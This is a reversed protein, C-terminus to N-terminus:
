FGPQGMARKMFVEPDACWQSYGIRRHDTLWDLKRSICAALATNGRDLAFGGLERASDLV